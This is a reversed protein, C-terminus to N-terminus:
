HDRVTDQGEHGAEKHGAVPDHADVVVGGPWLHLCHAFLQHSSNTYIDNNKFSIHKNM